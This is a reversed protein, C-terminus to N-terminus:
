AMDDSLVAHPPVVVDRLTASSSRTANLALLAPPPTVDVGQDSARILVVSRSEDPLRVPLVIATEPFLHSAWRIPGNLRLGGSTREAVVPVPELGALDRLAPALATSGIVDAARLSPVLQRTLETTRGHALFHLVM